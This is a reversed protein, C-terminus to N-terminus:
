FPEQVPRGVARTSAVGSGISPKRTRNQQSRRNRFGRGDSLRFRVRKFHLVALTTHRLLAPPWWPDGQCLLRGGGQKSCQPRPVAMASPKVVAQRETRQEAHERDRRRFELGILDERPGLPMLEREEQELLAQHPGGGEEMGQRRILDLSAKRQTTAVLGAV